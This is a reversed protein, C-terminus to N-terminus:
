SQRWKELVFNIVFYFRCYWTINGKPSFTCVCFLFLTKLISSMFGGFFIRACTQLYLGKEHFPVYYFIWEFYLSFKFCFLTHFLLRNNSNNDLWHINGIIKRGTFLTGSSNTYYKEIITEVMEHM